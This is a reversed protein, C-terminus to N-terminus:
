RAANSIQRRKGIGRHFDRSLDMGAVHDEGETGTINRLEARHDQFLKGLVCSNSASLSNADQDQLRVSTTM